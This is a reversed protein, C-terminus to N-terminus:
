IQQLRHGHLFIRDYSSMESPICPNYVKTPPPFLPPFKYQKTLSNFMQHPFFNFQIKQTHLFFASILYARPQVTESKQSQLPRGSYSALCLCTTNKESCLLSYQITLQFIQIQSQSLKLSFSVTFITKFQGRSTLYLCFVKTRTNELPKLACM